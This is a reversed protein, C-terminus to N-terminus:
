TEVEREQYRPYRWSETCFTAFEAYYGLRHGTTETTREGNYLFQLLHLM